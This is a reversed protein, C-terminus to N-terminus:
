TGKEGQPTPNTAEIPRPEDNPAPSAESASTDDAQGCGHTPPEVDNLLTALQIELARATKSTETGAPTDPGLRLRIELAAHELDDIRRAHASLGVAMYIFLGPAAAAIAGLMQHTTLLGALSLALAYGIAIAAVTLPLLLFENRYATKSTIRDIRRVLALYLAHDRQQDDM